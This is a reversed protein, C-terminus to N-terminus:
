ERSVGEHLRSDRAPTQDAGEIIQFGHAGESFEKYIKKLDRMRKYMKEFQDVVIKPYGTNRYQEYVANKYHQFTVGLIAQDQKQILYPIIKKLFESALYSRLYWVWSRSHKKKGPRKKRISGGFRRQVRKLLKLDTMHIEVVLTYQRRKTRQIHFCAEGDALGSMYALHIESHEM